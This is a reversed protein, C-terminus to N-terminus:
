ERSCGGCVVVWVKPSGCHAFNFFYRDDRSRRLSDAGADHLGIAIESIGHDRIGAVDLLAVVTMHDGHGSLNSLTLDRCRM